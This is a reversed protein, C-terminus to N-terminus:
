SPGRGVFTPWEGCDDLVTLPVTVAQGAVARRVTFTTERTDDPLALSVNGPAGSLTGADIRANTAAGFRLEHLTNTRTTASTGASVTVRLSGDGNPVVAIGVPPRPDCAVGVPPAGEPPGVRGPTFPTAPDGASVATVAVQDLYLAGTYRVGTGGVQVGLAAINTLPANPWAIEVWQGPVLTVWPSELWDWTPHQVYLSAGIKGAPAGASLYAWVSLRTGLSAWNAPPSPRVVAAGDKWGSGSFTLPLRLAGTGLHATGAAQVPTGVVGNWHKQWGETSGATEWNFLTGGSPSVTPSPTPTRTPTATATRTATATATAATTPPATPTQTATATATITATPTATGTPTTIVVTATPTATATATPVLLTTTATPVGTATATPTPTATPSAVGVVRLEDLYVSGTYTVGVGGVQVGLAALNTLPANPWRIEVWQGPVLTVWPSDLWDWTPHQAFLAAGITGPAGPPLYAWISLDTGFAAWDAPPNPYSVVGGDHWGSGSFTLPLLLAGTGRHATGTAQVPTGVVGAWARVWGETNGAVEWDNRLTGGAPPTATPPVGGPTATRTPTLTATATPAPPPGGIMTNLLNITMRQVRADAGHNQYENDDLKWPWYNTGASFVLAGSPAQYITGNATSQVGDANVVPSNSLVQLGPPTLGNNFVRDYEYGVLGPITQGNQLGTGAYIWHSANTVVWPYSSGYDFLHEFMIGLLANEPQNVPPDRFTVTTLSPNTASMPDLSADKYCVMVRNPVSSASPEFRVQWYINNSDFFALHLGADRAATLNARMQMSWYEDHFNSLFVKRGTFASPNAEVDLSSVYTVDYGQSELWRVMNYDGEFFLGAGDWNDYPRDFSVKYARGGPSQYDYLSKGGWKNYAQYTTFPVQYVIDAPDGDDRLVFPIYAVEGASSILKVLYIGSVWDTGTQLTYSVPWNAAILGTGPQPTPVPPNQGPLNTATHLLRGGAGGYWGMRYVELSYTPRATGIHFRITGGRNVSTQDAYGRIPTDRWQELALPRPAVGGSDPAAPPDPASFPPPLLPPATPTPTPTPPASFAPAVRRRPDRTEDHPDRREPGRVRREAASRSLEPSQWSTTGPRQNEARVRDRRVHPAAPAQPALPSPGQALVVASPALSAVPVLAPLALALAILGLLLRRFM